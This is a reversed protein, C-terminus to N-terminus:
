AHKVILYYIDNYMVSNAYSSIKLGADLIIEKFDEPNSGQYNEQLVINGEPHLLTKMNKYFSKHSEWNQDVLIEEVHKHEKINFGLSKSASISDKWHPPNGVVLDFQNDRSLNDLTNGKHISINKTYKSNLKTKELMDIAPSYMDNFCINKCVNTALLGYGIFGPGSCWEFARNITGHWEKVVDIYEIAFHDGGGNTENTYYVDLGNVRWIYDIM